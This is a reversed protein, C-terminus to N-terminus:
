RREWEKTAKRILEKIEPIPIDEVANYVVGDVVFNIGETQANILDVAHHQLSPTRALLEDVIEGIEQALNMGTVTSPSAPSDTVGAIRPRSLSVDGALGGSSFASIGPSPAPQTPKVASSPEATAPMAPANGQLHSRAFRALERLAELVEKRTTVDLTMNPTNARQGKVYIDWDIVSRRIALLFPVPKHQEDPSQLPMAQADPAKKPRVLIITLWTILGLLCLGVVALLPFLLNGVDFGEQFLM